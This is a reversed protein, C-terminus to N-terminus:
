RGRAESELLMKRYERRLESDLIKIRARDYLETLAEAMLDPIVRERMQALVQDRVDEFRVNEPPIRQEVKIIQYAYGVDLLNSVEGPKLAFAAERMVAPIVRDDANFAFPALRGGLPATEPNESLERAVDAFDDGRKLRSQVENVLGTSRKPIQIHRVLVRTGHTRAFEERLTAEDVSFQRAVIARLYANREMGIEFEVRSINREELVKQLAEDRQQALKAPDTTEEAPVMNALARDIEERIDANTVRIDLEQAEQKALRLLIMQQLLELGRAEILKEILTERAIPKGNVYAVADGDDALAPSSMLGAAFLVLVGTFVRGASIQAMKM